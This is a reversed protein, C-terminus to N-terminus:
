ETLGGIEPFVWDEYNPSKRGLYKVYYVERQERLYQYRQECSRLDLLTNTYKRLIAM